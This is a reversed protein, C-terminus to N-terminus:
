LSYNVIMWPSLFVLFCWLTILEIWGHHFRPSIVQNEEPKGISIRGKWTVAAELLHRQAAVLHGPRAPPRSAKKSRSASRACTFHRVPSSPFTCTRPALCAIIQNPHHHHRHHTTLILYELLRWYNSPVLCMCFDTTAYRKLSVQPPIIISTDHPYFLHPQHPYIYIYVYIYIYIMFLIFTISIM